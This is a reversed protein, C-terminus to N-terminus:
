DPTVPIHWVISSLRNESGDSKGEGTERRNHDKLETASRFSRQTSM